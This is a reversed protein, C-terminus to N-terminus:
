ESLQFQAPFKQNLPAPDAQSDQLEGKYYLRVIYGYYERPESRVASIPLDYTVELVETDGDAWDTPPTAWRNNVNASTQSIEKSGIKDYFLVFVKMDRAKIKEGVRARVPVRLSFKRASGPDADEQIKPSGIALTKGEPIEAAVPTGSSVERATAMVAADLKSKAASFYVGAGEGLLIVRKWQEAARENLGMKEYTYASEAIPLPNAPDLVMAERLKALAGATDGNGRLLKGQEVLEPVRPDTKPTFASLPVPTPRPPLSTPISAILPESTPNEPVATPHLPEPKAPFARAPLSRLTDVPPPSDLVLKTVDIKEPPRREPEVSATPTATSPKKKLHTFGAAGALVLATFGLVGASVVFTRGLSQRTIPSISSM